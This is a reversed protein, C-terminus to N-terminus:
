KVFYGAPVKFKEAPVNVNEELRVAKTVTEMGKMAIDSFLCIHGWGAFTSTTGKDITTFGECNKGAVTVNAIKSAKGEKKDKPSVEDWDIRLETGRYAPGAKYAEKRAHIVKYLSEGDSFFSEKLKDGEYTDKCEKMGYEDFYTVVRETVKITGMKMTNEFTVIGSKLDYKKTQGQLENSSILVVTLAVISVLSAKM